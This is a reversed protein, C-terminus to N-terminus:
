KLPCTETASWSFGMRLVRNNVPDSAYLANRSCALRHPWGLFLKAGKGEPEADVTDQLQTLVNGANDLVAVREQCADPVYIRGYEDIDFHSGKCNCGSPVYSMAFPYLREYSTLYEKTVASWEVAGKAEEPDTPLGAYPFTIERAWRKELDMKIITGYSPKLGGKGKPSQESKPGGFIAVYFRGTVDVRTCSAHARGPYSSVIRQLGDRLERQNEWTDWITIRQYPIEYGTRLYARGDLGEFGSTGSWYEHVPRARQYAEMGYNQSLTWAHTQMGDVPPIESLDRDFRVYPSWILDGHIGVSFGFIYPDAKKPSAFPELSRTRGLYRFTPQYIGIYLRDDEKDSEVVWSHLALIAQNEKAKVEEQTLGARGTEYPSEPPSFPKGNAPMNRLSKIVIRGDGLSLGTRVRVKFPGSNEPVQKGRDDSGDWSLVQALSGAKLPPASEKAGVAGAALHRVENDKADLIAVEVDCRATLEFAIRAGAGERTAEPKKAFRAEGARLAHNLLSALLVVLVLTRLM